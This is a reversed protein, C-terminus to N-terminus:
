PHEFYLIEGAADRVPNAYAICTAYRSSDKGPRIETNQFRKMFAAMRRLSEKVGIQKLDFTCDSLQIAACPSIAFESNLATGYSKAKCPMCLVKDTAPKPAATENIAYRGLQKGDYSQTFESSTYHYLHNDNCWQAISGVDPATITTLFTKCIVNVGADRMCLVNSLITTAANKSRAGYVSALHDNSLSYLSVEVTSPPFSLFVDILEANIALGNTYVEVCVGREKLLQYIATFDPHLIAEGGTLTCFILGAEVLDTLHREISFLRVIPKSSHGVIYCFPCKLNCHDLLEWHLTLPLFKDNSALLSLLETKGRPAVGSASISSVASEELYIGCPESTDVLVDLEGIRRIIEM